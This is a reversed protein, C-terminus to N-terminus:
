ASLPGIMTLFCNFDIQQLGNMSERQCWMRVGKAIIAILAKTFRCRAEEQYGYEGCGSRESNVVTIIGDCADAAEVCLSQSNGPVVKM